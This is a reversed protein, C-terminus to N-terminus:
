WSPGLVPLRVDVARLPPGPGELTVVRPGRARDSTTTENSILAPRCIVAIWGAEAAEGTATSTRATASQLRDGGLGSGAPIAYRGAGPWSKPLSESTSSIAM